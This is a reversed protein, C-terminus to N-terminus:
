PHLEMEAGVGGEAGAELGRRGLRLEVRFAEWTEEREIGFMGESRAGDTM